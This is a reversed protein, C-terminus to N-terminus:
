YAYLDLLKFATFSLVTDNGLFYHSVIFGFGVMVSLM